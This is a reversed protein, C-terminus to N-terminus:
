VMQALRDLMAISKLVLGPHLLDPRDLSTHQASIAPGTLVVIPRRWLGTAWSWPPSKPSSVSCRIGEDAACRCALTALRASSPDRGPVVSLGPLGLGSVYVVAYLGDSLGTADLAESCHQSGGFEFEDADLFGVLLHPHRSKRARSLLELLAIVGSANRYAGPTSARTDYNAAFLLTPEGKGSAVVINEGPLCCDDVEVILEVSEDCDGLFYADGASITVCPIAVKGNPTTGSYLGVGGTRYLLVASCGQRTATRVAEAEYGPEIGILALSNPPLVQAARCSGYLSVVRPVGRLTGSTGPSGPVPLCPISHRSPTLLRARRSLLAGVRFTQVEASCGIRSVEQRIYERALPLGESGASRPGCYDALYKIGLAVKEQEAPERVNGSSVRRSAPPERQDGDGGTSHARGVEKKLERHQRRRLM